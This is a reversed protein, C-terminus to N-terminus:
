RMVDLLQSLFQSTMEMWRMECILFGLGLCALSKGLPECPMLALSPGAALATLRGGGVAVDSPEWSGDVCVSACLAPYSPLCALLCALSLAQSFCM